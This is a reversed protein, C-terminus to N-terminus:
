NQKTRQLVQFSCGHYVPCINEPIENNQGKKNYAGMQLGRLVM